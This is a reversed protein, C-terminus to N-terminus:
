YKKLLYRCYQLCCSFVLCQLCENRQDGKYMQQAIAIKLGNKEGM